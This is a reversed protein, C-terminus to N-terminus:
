PSLYFLLLASTWTKPNLAYATGEENFVDHFWRSAYDNDTRKIEPWPIHTQTAGKVLGWQYCGIGEANFLPLQEHMKSEAHRALWETCLMPRKYEKLLGIAKNMLDLPVYAHFSIIDSLELARIDTPHQYIPAGLDLINAIHWAGVTLPQTPNVERAWMFAKEMLQHSYEELAPDFADEGALTFIMRNTPENYLDWIVIREDHAFHGIIEKLYREVQGWLYPQMVVNRGPSAAAQSNHLGPIPQKQQGIFPHDGSFGCDDMLTLMVKIDVRQCIDLFHEVRTMLGDPDHQWVVFPLNTRLTNYGAEAAWQLEQTMCAPDFTDQQWMETWNVATRPLYNFGRLWGQQKHWEWSKEESWKSM